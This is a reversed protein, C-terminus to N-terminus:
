ARRQHIWEEAIEIEKIAQRLTNLLGQLQAKSMQFSITDELDTELRAIVVPVALKVTGDVVGLRVDVSVDMYDFSALTHEAIHQRSLEPIQARIGDFFTVLDTSSVDPLIGVQTSASLITEASESRQVLGSLFFGLYLVDRTAQEDQGLSQALSGIEISSPFQNFQRSAELVAARGPTDLRGWVQAGRRVEDRFDEPFSNLKDLLAESDPAKKTAM